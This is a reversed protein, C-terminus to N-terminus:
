RSGPSNLRQTKLASIVLLCRCQRTKKKRQNQSDLSQDGCKHLLCKIWFCRRVRGDDDDDDGDDVVVVVNRNAQKNNNIMLVVVAVVVIIKMPKDDIM